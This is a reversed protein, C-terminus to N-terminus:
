RGAVLPSWPPPARLPDRPKAADVLRRERATAGTLVQGNPHFSVISPILKEGNTDALTVARGGDAHAVVTNTTGLDIGIVKEM